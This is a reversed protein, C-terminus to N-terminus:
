KGDTYTNVQIQETHPGPGITVAAVSFRYATFPRLASVNYSSVAPITFSFLEGGLPEVTIMYQRIIGNRNQPLPPGWTLQVATSSVPSANFNTPSGSPVTISVYLNFIKSTVVMPHVKFAILFSLAFKGTVASTYAFNFTHHLKLLAPVITNCFASDSLLRAKLIILTMAILKGDEGTRVTIVTSPPGEGVTVALITCNYTYYPHLPGITAETM